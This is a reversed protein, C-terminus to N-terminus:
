KKLKNEFNFDVKAKLYNAFKNKIISNIKTFNFDIPYLM